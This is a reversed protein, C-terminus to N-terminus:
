FWNCRAHSDLAAPRSIALSRTAAGLEVIGEPESSAMCNQKGPLAAFAEIKSVQWAEVKLRAQMGLGWHRRRRRRRREGEPNARSTVRLSVSVKWPVRSKRRGPVPIWDKVHKPAGLLKLLHISPSPHHKPGVPFFNSKVCQSSLCHSCPVPLTTKVPSICIMPSCSSSPGQM